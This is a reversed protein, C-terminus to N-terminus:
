YELRIFTGTPSFILHQRTSIEVEFGENIREVEHAIANPYNEAIYTEIEPLLIGAPLAGTKCDVETWLGENNFKMETGDNLWVEYRRHGSDGSREVVLITQAPFYQTIFSKAADPLASPSIRKDDDDDCAALLTLGVLAALLFLFGKKMITTKQSERPTTVVEM